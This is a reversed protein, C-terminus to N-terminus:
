EYTKDFYYIDGVPLKKDFDIFPIIENTLNFTNMLNITLNIINNEFEDDTLNKMNKNSKSM